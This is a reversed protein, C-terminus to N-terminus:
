VPHQKQQDAWSAHRVNSHLKNLSGLISYDITYLSWVEKQILFIGGFQVLEVKPSPLVNWGEMSICYKNKLCNLAYLQTANNYM